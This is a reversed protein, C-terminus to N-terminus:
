NKCIQALHQAVRHKLIGYRAATPTDALRKERVSTFEGVNVPKRRMSVPSTYQSATTDIITGDPLQNVYHTEHFQGETIEYGVLEGGFYDQVVLSSVVCQGRAKNEPNWEKFDYATDAHWSAQLAESLEQLTPNMTQLIASISYNRHIAFFQYLMVRSVPVLNVFQYNFKYQIYSM